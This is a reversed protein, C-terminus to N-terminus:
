WSFLSGIASGASSLMSGAGDILDGGLDMAGGVLNGAGEMISGGVNLAGNATDSMWNAVGPGGLATATNWLMGGAGLGMLGLGTLPNGTMMAAAGLGMEGMGLGMRKAWGELASDEPNNFFDISAGTVAGSDIGMAELAPAAYMALAFSGPDIFQNGGGGSTSYEEVHADYVDGFGLRGDGGSALSADIRSSENTVLGRRINDWSKGPGTPGTGHGVHNTARDQAWAGSPMGGMNWGPMYQANDRYFDNDDAGTRRSTDYGLWGMAGNVGANIPDSAWNHKQAMSSDRPGPTANGPLRQEYDSMRRGSYSTAM